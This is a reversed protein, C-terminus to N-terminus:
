CGGMGQRSVFCSFFARVMIRIMQQRLRIPTITKQVQDNGTRGHPLVARIPEDNHKIEMGWARSEGYGMPRRRNGLTLQPNPSCWIVNFMLSDGPSAGM